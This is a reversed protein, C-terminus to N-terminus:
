HAVSRRRDDPDEASSEPRVDFPAAALPLRVTFTTGQRERPAADITGGHRRVIEAAIFLGLGLGPAVHAAGEARFGPEFVRAHADAPLGIGSDRVAIAAQGHDTTVEIEVAGGDPSYKIANTILNELARGLREADCLVPLPGPPMALAIPHRDSLRDLMRVTPEVISRLDTPTLDLSFEHQGISRADSLTRVLSTARAAATEVRALLRPFDLSSLGANRRAFQITGQIAGLPTALDHTITAILRDREERAAREREAAAVARERAAQLRHVVWGVMFAVFVFLALDATDRLGSVEPTEAPARLLVNDALGGTLAVVMAPGRGGILALAVILLVVLHEFVFLPAALQVTLMIVALPLLTALLYTGAKVRYDTWPRRPAPM